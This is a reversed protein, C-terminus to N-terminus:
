VAAILSYLCRMEDGRREEEEYILLYNEKYAVEGGGKLRLKEAGHLCECVFVCVSVCM